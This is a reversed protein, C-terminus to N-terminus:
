NLIIKGTKITKDMQTVTYLYIGKNYNFDLEKIGSGIIIEEILKGSLTYFSLICNQVTENGKIILKNQIQMIELNSSIENKEVALWEALDIDLSVTCGFMDNITLFYNGYCLDTISNAGVGSVEDLDPEWYYYIGSYDGLYNYVTDVIIAGDCIDPSSPDILILDADMLEPDVLYTTDWLECLDSNITYIYYTGALLSNATEGINVLVGDVDTIEVTHPEAGDFPVVTIAGDSYGPCTPHYLNITQDFSECQSFGFQSNLLLIFIYYKM